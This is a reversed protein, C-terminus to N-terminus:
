GWLAKSFGLMGLGKKHKPVLRKVVLFSDPLIFLAVRKAREPALGVSRKRALLWPRFAQNPGMHWGM